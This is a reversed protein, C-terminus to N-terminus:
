TRKGTQIDNIKRLTEHALASPSLLGMGINELARCATGSIKKEKKLEDRLRDIECTQCPTKIWNTATLRGHGHKCKKFLITCYEMEKPLKGKSRTMM